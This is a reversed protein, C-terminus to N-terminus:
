DQPVGMDMFLKWSGDKQKKWMTVYKGALVAPKGNERYGYSYKGTEYVADGDLWANISSVIVKVEKEEKLVSEMFATYLELLQVHGKYVKRSSSLFKGDKAFLSVILKPDGKVWAEVWKANGKEIALKAEAMTDANKSAFTKPVIKAQTFGNVGALFVVLIAILIKM